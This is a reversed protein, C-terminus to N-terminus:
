DNAGRRVCRFGQGLDSQTTWGYASRYIAQSLKHSSGLYYGGRIRLTCEKHKGM